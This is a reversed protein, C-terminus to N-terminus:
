KNGASGGDIVLNHHAYPNAIHEASVDPAAEATGGQVEDSNNSQITDM